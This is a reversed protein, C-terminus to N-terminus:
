LACYFWVVVVIIPQFIMPDYLIYVIYHIAHSFRMILSRRVKM